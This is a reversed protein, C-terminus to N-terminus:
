EQEQTKFQKVESNFEQNNANKSVAKYYYGTNPALGSITVEHDVALTTDEVSPLSLVDPFQGVIIKSTSPINTEWSFTATTSTNGVVTIKSFNVKNGASFPESNSAYSPPKPFLASFLKDKFELANVLILFFIIGLAAVVILIYGASGKQSSKM